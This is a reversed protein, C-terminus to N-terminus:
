QWSQSLNVVALGALTVEKQADAKEVETQEHQKEKCVRQQSTQDVKALSKVHQRITFQDARELLNM